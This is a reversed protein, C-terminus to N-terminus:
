RSEPFIPEYPVSHLAEFSSLIYDSYAVMGSHFALKGHSGVVSDDRVMTESKTKAEVLLQRIARWQSPSFSRFIEVLEDEPLDEREVSVHVVPQTVEEPQPRFFFRFPFLPDGSRRITV